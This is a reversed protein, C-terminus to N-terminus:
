RRSGCESSCFEYMATRVCEWMKDSSNPIVNKYRDELLSKLNVLEEKWKSVYERADEISVHNTKLRLLLDREAGPPYLVLEGFEEFDRMMLLLRYMHHVQKGDYGYKEIKHAISPYPHCMAKEKELFMGYLAKAFLLGRDIMMSPLINRMKEMCSVGEDVCVYYPTKLTEIYSPNMKLVTTIYSRMDKVDIHGGEYDYVISVPNSDRILDQMTPLVVCMYDFDSNYDACHIDLGYNQSGRIVAYISHYGRQRVFEIVKNLKEQIEEKM